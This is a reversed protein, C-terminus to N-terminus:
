PKRVLLSSQEGPLPLPGMKAVGGARALERTAAAVAEEVSLPEDTFVAVVREHGTGTLELSDDMLHTGPSADAPLSQGREPYLATVEGAEDVSLVLLYRRDGAQYGVRVREGQALPEDDRALRAQASAGGVYLSLASSGKSRTTPGSPFVVSQLPGALVLASLGAALALSVPGAWRRRSLQRQKSAVRNAFTEFPVESQFVAKEAELERAAQRCRDCGELHARVRREEEAELEGALLRSVQLRSCGEPRTGPIRLAEDM